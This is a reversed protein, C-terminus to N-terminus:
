ELEALKIVGQASEVLVIKKQEVQILYIIAKPSLARKDIIKIVNTENVQSLRNQNLRKLFWAMVLVAGLMLGLTALMNVFKTIFSDGEEHPLDAILDLASESASITVSLAVLVVFIAWQYFRCM